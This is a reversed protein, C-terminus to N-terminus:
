AAVAAPLQVVATEVLLPWGESALFELTDNMQAGILEATESLPTGGRESAVGIWLGMAEAINTLAEDRSEGQSIAGPMAPCVVSYWGSPEKSLVVTYTDV